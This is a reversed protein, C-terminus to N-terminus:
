GTRLRDRETKGPRPRIPKADKKEKQAPRGNRGATKREIARYHAIKGALLRLSESLAAIRGTVAAKHVELMERRAAATGDGQYRLDAFRKMQRIPMGTARLRQLFELWAADDASYRRHGGGHRSVQRILGAREYYRLTYASLGSRAAMERITLHTTM